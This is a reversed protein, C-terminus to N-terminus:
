RPSGPQQHQPRYHPHWHWKRHTSKENRDYHVQFYCRKLSKDRIRSLSGISSVAVVIATVVAAVLSAIAALAVLVAVLTLTLTLVLVLALALLVLACSLITLTLALALTLAVATSVLALVLALSALALAVTAAVPDLASELKQALRNIIHSPLALVTFAVYGISTPRLVRSFDFAPGNVDNVLM